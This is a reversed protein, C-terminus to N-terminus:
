RILSKLMTTTPTTVLTPRTKPNYSKAGKYYRIPFLFTPWLDLKITYGQGPLHGQITSTCRHFGGISFITKPPPVFSGVGETGQRQDFRGMPMGGEAMQPM